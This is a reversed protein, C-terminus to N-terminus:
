GIALVDYLPRDEASRMLESVENQVRLKEGAVVIIRLNVSLSLLTLCVLEGSVEQNWTILQHADPLFLTFTASINWTV